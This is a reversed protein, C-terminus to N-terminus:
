RALRYQILLVCVTSIVPVYRRALVCAGSEMKPMVHEVSITGSQHYEAHGGRGECVIAIKSLYISYRGLFSPCNGDATEKAM